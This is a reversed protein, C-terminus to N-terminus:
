GQAPATSIEEADNWYQPIIGLPFGLRMGRNNERSKKQVPFASNAVSCIHTDMDSLQIEM